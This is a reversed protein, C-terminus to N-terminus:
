WSFFPASTNVPLVPAPPAVRFCFSNKKKSAAADDTGTSRSTISPKAPTCLSLRPASLSLSAIRVPKGPTPGVPRPPLCRPPSEISPNRM